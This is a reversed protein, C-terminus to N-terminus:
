AVAARRPEPIMEAANVLVEEVTVLNLCSRYPCDQPDFGGGFCPGCSIPHHLARHPEPYPHYIKPDAFGTISICPRGLAAAIHSPGTDNTIVLSSGAVLDILDALSTRGILVRCGPIELFAPVLPRESAVGTVAVVHGSSALARTVAAYRDVPWRKYPVGADSGPHILVYANSILNWEVLNESAPDAAFLETREEVAAGGAALALRLSWFIESRGGETRPVADTLFPRAAPRDYGIRRPIGAQFVLRALCEDRDLLCALGFGRGALNAVTEVYQDDEYFLIEDVHPNSRLVEELGPRILIALHATPFATKLSKLAPTAFLVDGLHRTEVVLIRQGPPPPTTRKAVGAALAFDLRNKWARGAWRGARRVRSWLYDM